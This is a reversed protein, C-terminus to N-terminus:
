FTPPYIRDHWNSLLPKSHAPSFTQLIRHRIFPQLIWAELPNGSCQDDCPTLHRDDLIAECKVQASPQRKGTSQGPSKDEFLDDMEKVLALDELEVNSPCSQGPQRLDTPSFDIHFRRGNIFIGIEAAKEGTLRSM